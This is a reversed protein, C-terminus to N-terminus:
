KRKGLFDIVGTPLKGEKRLKEVHPCNYPTEFQVSDCNTKNIYQSEAPKINNFIPQLVLHKADCIGM